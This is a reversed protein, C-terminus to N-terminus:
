PSPGTPRRDRVLLWGAVFVLLAGVLGSSEAVAGWVLVDALLGLPIRAYGVIATSPASGRAYAASLMLQGAVGVIAMPLLLALAETTSMSPPPGQIQGQTLGLGLSGVVVVLSFMLVVTEPHDPPRGRADSPGTARRVFTHAAASCTASAVAAIAAVIPIGELATVDGRWVLADPLVVLAAGGLAIPLAVLASGRLREDLLPVALVAVLVPQSLGIVSYQLLTLSDLAWFYLAM